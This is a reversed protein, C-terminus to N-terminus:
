RYYYKIYDYHLFKGKTYDEGQGTAIQKKEECWKIDSYITQDYLNEENIITNYNKIIGKPLYYRQKKYMKENNDENSYILAFM